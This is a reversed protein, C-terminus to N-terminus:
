IGTVAFSIMRKATRRLLFRRLILNLNIYLVVEIILDGMDSRKRFYIHEFVSYNYILAPLPQCGSSTTLGWWKSDHIAM